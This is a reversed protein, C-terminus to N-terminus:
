ESFSSDKSSEEFDKLSPLDPFKEKMRQEAVLAAEELIKQADRSAVEFNPTVGTVEGAEVILDDLMLGIQGIEREANPLLGGLGAQVSQLVRTAPALTSVVNGLQTVTKLRLAVRELALEANMMFSAMKRLEALENALIRARQMQHKSYAEVIKSFLYRDRESLSNLAGELYQIQSEVRRIAVEIKTKLPESPKLAARLGRLDGEEWKKAFKSSM